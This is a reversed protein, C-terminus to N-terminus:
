VTVFKDVWVSSYLEGDMKITGMGVNEIPTIRYGDLIEIYHPTHGCVIEAEPMNEPKAWEEKLYRYLENVTFGDKNENLHIIKGDKDINFLSDPDAIKIKSFKPTSTTVTSELFEATQKILVGSLVTLATAGTIKKLFDRREM